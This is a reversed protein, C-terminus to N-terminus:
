SGDFWVPQGDLTFPKGFQVGDVVWVADGTPAYSQSHIYFSQGPPLMWRAITDGNLRCLDVQWVAVSRDLYNGEWSCEVVTASM